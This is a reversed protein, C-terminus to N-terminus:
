GYEQINGSRGSFRQDPLGLASRCACTLLCSLWGHGFAMTTAALESTSGQRSFDKRWHAESQENLHGPHRRPYGPTVVRGYDSDSRNPPRALNTELISMKDASM